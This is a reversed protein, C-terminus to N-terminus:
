IKFSFYINIFILSYYIYIYIYIYIKYLGGQSNGCTTETITVALKQLDIFDGALFYNTNEKHPPSSISMIEHLNVRNTVGISIIQIGDAQAQEAYPITM